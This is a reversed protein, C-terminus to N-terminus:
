LGKHQSQFCFSGCPFNLFKSGPVEIMCSHKGVDGPSPLTSFESTRPSDTKLESNEM